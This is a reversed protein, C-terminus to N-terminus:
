PRVLDRLGRMVLWALGLLTVPGAVLWLAQIFEPWTHFKSLWDAWLSYPQDMAAVGEISVVVLPLEHGPLDSTTWPRGRHGKPKRAPCAVAGGRGYPQSPM